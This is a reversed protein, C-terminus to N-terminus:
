RELEAVRAKLRNLEVTLAELALLHTDSLGKFLALLHQHMMRNDVSLYVGVVLCGTTSVVLFWLGVETWFSV